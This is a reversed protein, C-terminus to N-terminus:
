GKGKVLPLNAAQWASMGGALVYPQSFGLTKLKASLATSQMGRPCVLILPQLKYKDMRQQTFDDETALIADIIHGARFAENNRLDIVTANQHNIMEVAAITSLAKAQKRQTLYENVFILVLVVMLILWLQWHRMIFPMLNQAIHEM